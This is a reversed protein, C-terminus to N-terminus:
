AKRQRYLNPDIVTAMEAADLNADFFSCIREIQREADNQMRNYSVFLVDIHPAKRMWAEIEEVHSAFTSKMEEHPAKDEEQRRILMKEQSALVEDLSRRMFVVKYRENDPLDLLLQSIVKVVKGRANPVWSPDEKTQKVPEFEYYGKPNDEDASRVGDTIPELGGAELMKMMMSTGSRPLGSVVYIPATMASTIARISPCQSYVLLLEGM